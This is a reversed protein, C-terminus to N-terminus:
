RNDVKARVVWGESTKTYTPKLDSHDPKGLSNWDELHSALESAATETGAALLAGSRLVVAVGDSTAVGLGWGNSGGLSAPNGSEALVFSTFSEWQTKSGNFFGPVPVAASAQDLLREALDKPRAHLQEASIWWPPGSEGQRSADIYRLPLAFNTIVEPAMEIFSGPSLTGDQPEGDIVDCRLVANAGAVNALKVPSVILGGSNIQQVWAIPLVHPTTWGVVRDFPEGKEWGAFGDAAHVEINTHGAEDHRKAARSALGADIDISFVHGAEGVLKSAVAGSYGSGTGIELVNMGPKVDLARLMTFITTATTIQPILNGDDDTTWADYDVTAAAATVTDTM